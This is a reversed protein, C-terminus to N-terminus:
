SWNYQNLKVDYEMYTGSQVSIKYKLIKVDDVNGSSPAKGIIEPSKEGPKIPAKCKMEIVEETDKLLIEMTFTLITEESDNTIVAKLKDNTESSVEFDVPVTDVRLPLQKVQQEENRNGQEKKNAAFFIGIGLKIAGAIIFTTKYKKLFEM